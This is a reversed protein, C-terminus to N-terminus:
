LPNRAARTVPLLVLMIRLSPITTITTKARVRAAHVLEGVTEGVVVVL